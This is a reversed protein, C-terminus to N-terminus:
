RVPEGRISWLLRAVFILAVSSSVVNWWAHALVAQVDAVAIWLCTVAVWRKETSSM